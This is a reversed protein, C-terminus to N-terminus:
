YCIAARRVTPSITTFSVFTTFLMLVKRLQKEAETEIAVGKTWAKIPVGSEPQILNYPTEMVSNAAALM